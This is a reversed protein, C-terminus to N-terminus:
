HIFFCPNSDLDTEEFTQTDESRIKGLLKVTLYTMKLMFILFLMVFCLVVVHGVLEMRPRYGLSNFVYIWVFALVHINVAANMM